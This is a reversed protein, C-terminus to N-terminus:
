DKDQERDAKDMWMLARELASGKQISADGHVDSVGLPVGTALEFAEAIHKIPIIQLRGSKVAAQTKRHLMLNQTNAWPILVTYVESTGILDCIKFFGEIKENVGGISQVDGFQNMSGTIALNQRIPVRALSSIIAIVEALTASDGDIMGYNQEFCISATFAHSKSRPFVAKFFGSIIMVAKDHIKGSLRVAREINIIGRKSPSSTCTIRSIKGFSYDAYDYVALGNIQGIRTGDVSILIDKQKILRLLYEEQLNLRYYKLDLADEVDSRQVCTTDREKAIFDAEITLDKIDGFQTSLLSQDEILRSGYEVIAAVASRDFPLLQELQARTAIFSVYSLINEPSREMKFDFDAKIKFIKQFEEDQQYLLHYVEDTGILILKLDLPVPEPRLGSTPLLSYQEGMDEIFGKRNRLIRKLSEWINGPRFVDIANLVLYGGNARHISGSKILTFDTLYMGHEVNKEIKGFLNYYTPNNEIIVPAKETKSNDVFVNVKYKTFKDKDEVYIGDEGTTAQDEEVFELLNEKVDERVQEIYEIIEPFKEYEEILPTILTTVIQEGISSRLNELQESTEKDIARVKRAFDLVEPELESRRDEIDQRFTEGLKSYDRESLARGDVIPITEIGMRTSKIVFDKTKALKELESYLKSKIDNASSIYTNVANEYDESQLAVPIESRLAKVLQEMNKKFKRGEGRLLKIARPVEIDSFNYIYVWDFPAPSDASWRELFQRIVSTKGTGEIGAVYINYGPRKISLGMNIARIARDQAIIDHSSELEATTKFKFNGSPCSAYVRELPLPEPLQLSAIGGKPAKLKSSPKAKTKAKSTKKLSKKTKPKKSM